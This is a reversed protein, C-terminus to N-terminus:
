LMCFFLIVEMQSSQSWSIIEYASFVLMMSRNVCVVSTWDCTFIHNFFRVILLKYKLSKTFNNFTTM